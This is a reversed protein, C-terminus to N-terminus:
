RDALLMQNLRVLRKKGISHLVDGRARSQVDAKGREVQEQIQRAEDLLQTGAKTLEIGRTLRTFIGDGIGAGAAPNTLVASAPQPRTARCSEHVAAGGGGCRLIAPKVDHSPGATRRIPKRHM